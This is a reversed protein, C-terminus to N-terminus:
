EDEGLKGEALIKEAEGLTMGTYVRQGSRLLITAQKEGYKVFMNADDDCYIMDVAEPNIYAGAIKILNM